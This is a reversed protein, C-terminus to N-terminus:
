SLARSTVNVTDALASSVSTSTVDDLNVFLAGMETAIEEALGLRPIRHECDLIVSQIKASRVTQAAALAQEYADSTGTARGDTLFILTCENQAYRHDTAVSLGKYIGAALPTTGGTILSSLRLNAVEISATPSLVLQASDNQFTVMCVQHRDQYATTLLERIAGIAAASRIDAGMSGSTDVVFILLRRRSREKVAERVDAPRLGAEPESQRRAALNRVTPVVAIPNTTRPDFPLDRITRASKARTTRSSTASEFRNISPPLPPLSGALAESDM